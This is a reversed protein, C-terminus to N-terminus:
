LFILENTFYFFLSFNSTPSPRISVILDLIQRCHKVIGPIEKLALTDYIHLHRVKRYVTSNSDASMQKHFLSRLSLRNTQYSVTHLFIRREHESISYAIPTPQWSKIIDKSNFQEDKDHSHYCISYSFNKVRASIIARLCRGDIMSYDRSVLVFSFDEITPSLQILTKLDDFTSFWSMAYVSLETLHSFMSKDSCGKTWPRKFTTHIQKVNPIMQNLKLLDSTTQLEVDLQVINPFNMENTDEDSLRFADCEHDFLVHTLQRDNAGFITKLLNLHGISETLDLAQILLKHFHKMGHLTNLFLILKEDTWNVLTLKELCQYVGNNKFSEFFLPSELEFIVLSRISSQIQPLVKNYIAIFQMYFTRHLSVHQRYFSITQNLRSNLGFLSYLVDGSHLYRCIELLMEDPLMELTSSRAVM